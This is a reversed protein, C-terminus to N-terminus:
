SLLAVLILNFLNDTDLQSTEASADDDATIEVKGSDFIRNLMDRKEICDEFRM